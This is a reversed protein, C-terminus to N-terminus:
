QTSEQARARKLSTLLWTDDHTIELQAPEAEDLFNRYCRLAARYDSYERLYRDGAERFRRASEAKVLTKEAELEVEAPSLVRPPEVPPPLPAHAVPPAPVEVLITRPEPAPRLFTVGVGAAFCAICVSIRSAFRVRRDFRLRRLTRDLLETKLPDNASPKPTFLEDDSM